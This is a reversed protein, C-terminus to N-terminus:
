RIIKAKGFAEYLCRLPFLADYFRCEDIKWPNSTAIGNRGLRATVEERDWDLEAYTRWTGM